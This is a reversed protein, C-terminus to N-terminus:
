PGAQALRPKLRLKGPLHVLPEYIKYYGQRDIKSGSLHPDMTAAEIYFGGRLTGGKKPATQALATGVGALGAASAVAAGATVTRLFDRRSVTGMSVGTRRAAM